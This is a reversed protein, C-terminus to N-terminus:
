PPKSGSLLAEAEVRFVQNEEIDLGALRSEDHLGIAHELHARAKVTDGLHFQCMALLYLDLPVFRRSTTALSTELEIVADRYRGLRYLTLGLTNHNIAIEPALRVAAQAHALAKLPARLPSPATVYAWALSNRLLALNPDAVLAAECDAFGSAYQKVALYAAGRAALIRPDGPSIAAARTYDAIAHDHHGQILSIRGRRLMAHLDGPDIELAENLLDVEQPEYGGWAFDHGGLDIAVRLSGASQMTTDGEPLSPWDWDLDMGVLGQRITRLDWVHAADSAEATLILRSGDASFTGHRSRSQQPDDLSAVLRGTEAEILRVSGAPDALVLLRGDPSFGLASGEFHPGERWDGVTWLRLDNGMNTALWRGDPSFLPNAYLGPNPFVKICRGDPLSWVAVGVRNNHSGTAAWHGDPSVALYRVDAHPGLRIPSGPHDRDIVIPSAYEQCYALFRGDRSRDISQGKATSLLDPPGIKLSNSDGPSPHVPWRVLGTRGMTVLDGSPEFLISLIKGIPLWGVSVDRDIDWIGVGSSTGVALLRGNPHIASCVVHDRPRVPSRVLSRYERGDAVQFLVPAGNAAQAAFRLGDRRFEMAGAASLLTLLVEDTRPRWIRLKGDWGDSALLSGRPQFAAIIGMSM